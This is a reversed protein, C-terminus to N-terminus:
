IMMEDIDENLKLDMNMTGFMKKKKVLMGIYILNTM